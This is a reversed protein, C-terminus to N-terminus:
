WRITFSETETKYKEYSFPGYGVRFDLVERSTKIEVEKAGSKIAANIGSVLNNNSNSSRIIDSM